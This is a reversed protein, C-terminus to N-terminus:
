LRMLLAIQLSDVSKQDCNHKKSFPFVVSLFDKVNQFHFCMKFFFWMKLIFACKSFSGCKKFSLEIQFGNQLHFSTIRVLHGKSCPFMCFSVCKLVWKTDQKEDNDYDYDYDYHM